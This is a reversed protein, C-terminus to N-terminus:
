ARTAASVGATPELTRQLVQIKAEHVFEARGGPFFTRLERRLWARVGDLSEEGGDVGRAISRHTLLNEVYEDLDYVRRFPTSEAYREDLGCAAAEIATLVEANRVVRPYRIRLVERHWTEFDPRAVARGMTGAKYLVLWGARRLVRVAEALFRRHDFWHYAASVTLLDFTAAPFPLAEAYGKRYAIQPHREAQWLMESSPDIGVIERAYPLLAVTSHGTGCGVDLARAVPLEPGLWGALLALVREQARPRHAAYRAATEMAAGMHPNRGTEASAPAPRSEFLLGSM